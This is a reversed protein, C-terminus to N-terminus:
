YDRQYLFVDAGGVKYSNLILCCHTKMLILACRKNLFILFFFYLLIFIFYYQCKNCLQQCKKHTSINNRDNLFKQQYKNLYSQNVRTKKIDESLTLKDSYVTLLLM